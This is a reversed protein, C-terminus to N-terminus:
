RKNPADVKRLYMAGYTDISADGAYKLVNTAGHSGIWPFVSPGRNIVKRRKKSASAHRSEPSVLIMQMTLDAIFKLLPETIDRPGIPSNNNSLADYSRRKQFGDIAVSGGSKLVVGLTPSSLLSVIENQLPFSRTSNTDQPVVIWLLEFAGSSSSSSSVQEDLAKRICSADCKGPALCFHSVDFGKAGFRYHFFTSDKATEDDTACDNTAADATTIVAIRAKSSFCIRHEKPPPAVDIITSHLSPFTPQSLVIAVDSSFATCQVRTTTTTTSRQLAAPKNNNAVAFSLSKRFAVIEPGLVVEDVLSVYPAMSHLAGGPPAHCFMGVLKCFFLRQGYSMSTVGRNVPHALDPPHPEAADSTSGHFDLWTSVQLDEIVLVGGPKLYSSNLWYRFAYTTHAHMHSGDDIVIDFPGFRAGCASVTKLDASSGSCLHERIYNALFADVNSRHYKDECARINFELSHYTTSNGMYSRYLQAGGGSCKYFQCGLGIELLKAKKTTQRFPGVISERYPLLMRAYMEQYRHATFKDSCTPLQRMARAGDNINGRITPVGASSNSLPTSAAVNRTASADTTVTSIDPPLTSTSTSSATAAIITPDDRPPPKNNDSLTAPPSTSVAGLLLLTTGKQQILAMSGILFMLLAIRIWYNQAM